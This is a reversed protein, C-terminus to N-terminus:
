RRGKGPRGSFKGAAHGLHPQHGLRETRPHAEVDGHVQNKRDGKEGRRRRAAALRGEGLKQRGHVRFKGSRGASPAAALPARARELDLAPGAAFRSGVGLAHRELGM